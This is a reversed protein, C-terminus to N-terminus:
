RALLPGCIMSCLNEVQLFSTKVILKSSKVLSTLWRCKTTPILTPTAGNVACIADALDSSCMRYAVEIDRAKFRIFIEVINYMAALDAPADVMADGARGCSDDLM